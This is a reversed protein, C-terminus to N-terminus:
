LDKNAALNWSFNTAGGTTSGGTHIPNIDTTAPEQRQINCGFSGGSVLDLEETTMECKEPEKSM